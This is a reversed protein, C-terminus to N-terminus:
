DQNPAPGASGRGFYPHEVYATLAEELMTLAAMSFVPLRRQEIPDRLAWLVTRAADVLAQEEPHTPRAGNM